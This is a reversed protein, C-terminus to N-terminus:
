EREIDRDHKDDNTFLSGLYVFEKEQEVKESEILIDCETTIEDREFVMMKTKSVDVKMGREKVSDNMKNVMEHLGYASPVLIVHDDAYLLCKVPLDDMRLGCEYEKLDYVCSDMFPDFLWPSATLTHGM